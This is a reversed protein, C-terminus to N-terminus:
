DRILAEIGIIIDWTIKANQAVVTTSFPFIVHSIAETVRVKSNLEVRAICIVLGEDM